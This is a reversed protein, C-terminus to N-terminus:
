SNKVPLTSELKVLFRLLTLADNVTLVQDANCDSNQQQQVNLIVTGAIAKNLMVVDTIEIKGDLNVDGYLVSGTNPEYKEWTGDEHLAIYYIQISSTQQGNSNQTYSEIELQYYTDEIGQSPLTIKGTAYDYDGSSLLEKGTKDYLRYTCVSVDTPTTTETIASTTTVASATTTMAIPQYVVITPESEGAVFTYTENAIMYDDPAMIEKVTYTEGAKLDPIVVDEGDYSFRYVSNGSQDLVDFIITSTPTRNDAFRFSIKHSAVTQTPPSSITFEVPIIEGYSTIKKTVSEGTTLNNIVYTGFPLSETQMKTGTEEITLSARESIKCEQYSGSSKLFIQIEDGENAQVSFRGTIPVLSLHMTAHTYQPFNSNLAIWTDGDYYGLEQMEGSLFYGVPASDMQVEWKGEYENGRLTFECLKGDADISYTGYAEGDHYVTYSGGSLIADGSPTTSNTLYDKCDIAITYTKETNPITVIVTSGANLTITMSSAAMYGDPITEKITYSISNGSSDKVPLKSFAAQGNANTTGQYTKGNGTVTIVIGSLTDLGSVNVLLSGTAETTTDEAFAVISSLNSPNMLSVVNSCLTGIALLAVACMIKKKMKLM